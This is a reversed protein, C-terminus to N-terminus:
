PAELQEKLRRLTDFAQIPSLAELKLERLQELAPHNMYETFLSLQGNPPAAGSPPAPAAAGPGHHHVSLSALVDRARGIVSTPIGALRAVHVGYSRDSRGPLIRHLFIIQDGWERVSVHLNRVRGPLREELETLEHYHTAFLTRPRCPAGDAGALFEAIAWALSLGDLTSTGRGIEDLIVLSRGSANNLISATETMEVMFTSQGAHLADDAGVRTFIRDTLGITAEQAPVFSGAHALLVILATQRIFTSKGAMNPGTILALCSAPPEAANRDAGGGEQDAVVTSAIGLDVDNPVFNDGLMEELVPHRGAIIGLAPGEVMRPRVWGRRVAREAYCGLTDLEAVVHAFGAIAPICAAARACLREFLLREREVARAEATTVKEEFEKLAPTTYREANKLTQKRTLVAPANRAQVASLEIYYGFVRNYGVKIGPLGHEESLQQQYRALWSSGDKQLLRSEDLEADIGDRFLGGERLHAPASDVCQELILAAVPALSERVLRLQELDMAFAPAHELTAAIVDLRALSRGLAVLDRPTARGLAVRGAIRAVDQVGDLAEVLARATRRDEVLVAVRAHRSQIAGLDALPRCLWERVLRKGMPTRCAGPGSLMLGVLSGDSRAGGGGGGGSGGPTGSRITREVELSRLSVADLICVGTSDERRPPQLHALTARAQTSRGAMEQPVDGATQTEKLYRVVAGAAQVAPEEDHLGFGALTAVGYQAHIAELAESPRFQWAPRPTCSIGLVEAARRIAPPTDAMGVQEAYLLEHVGRAALQDGLSAADCEMVTFAGTSLEVIAVGLRTPQRLDAPAVAALANSASEDLLSDDVLTGPTLVRTVAREVIGKAEKPDQIQECVAVRYGQQILRRLYVEVQHYPVGAMPIGESRRTLTLGLAKHLTVADDDFTEYFDGIRFLLICDPHKQKFRTFQRMAPTDRPDAM